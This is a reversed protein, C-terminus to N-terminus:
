NVGGLRTSFGNRIFPYADMHPFSYYVAGNEHVALTKSQPLRMM